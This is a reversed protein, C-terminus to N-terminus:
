YRSGSGFDIIGWAVFVWCLPGGLDLRGPVVQERRSGSIVAHGGTYHLDATDM